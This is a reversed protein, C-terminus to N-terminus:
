RAHKFVKQPRWSGFAAEYRLLAVFSGDVGYARCTDAAPSPATDPALQYPRGNQVDRVHEDNLIAAPLSWLPRDLALLRDELRAAGGDILEDLTVADPLM